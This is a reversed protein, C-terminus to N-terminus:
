MHDKIYQNLRQELAETRKVMATLCDDLTHAASRFYPIEQDANVLSAIAPNSTQAVPIVEIVTRCRTCLRAIAGTPLTINSFGMQHVEIPDAM